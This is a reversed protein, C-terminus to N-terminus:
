TQTGSVDGDTTKQPAVRRTRALVNLVTPSPLRPLSPLLLARQLDSNAQGGWVLHRPRSPQFVADLLPRAGLAAPPQKEAPRWGKLLAHEVAAILPGGMHPATTTQPDSRRIHCGRLPRIKGCSVAVPQRSLPDPPFRLVGRLPVAYAPSRRGATCLWGPATLDGPRLRYEQLRLGHYK